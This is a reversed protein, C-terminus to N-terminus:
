DGSFSFYKALLEIVSLKESSPEVFEFGAEYLEENQAPRCWRCVAKVKLKNKGQLEQPLVISMKYEKGQEAEKPLVLMLGEFTFDALRGLQEGTERDKVDLYYLSLERRYKRKDEPAADEEFIDEILM